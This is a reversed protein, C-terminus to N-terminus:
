ARVTEQVPHPRQYVVEQLELGPASWVVRIDCRGDRARLVTEQGSDGLPQLREPQVRGHARHHLEEVLEGVQRPPLSRLGAALGQAVEQDNKSREGRVRSLLEPLLHAVPSRFLTTYPFLTSRPPRRIM